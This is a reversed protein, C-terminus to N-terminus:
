CCFTLQKMPWFVTTRRLTSSQIMNSLFGMQIKIFNSLRTILTRRVLCHPSAYRYLHMQLTCMKVHKLMNYSLVIRLSCM